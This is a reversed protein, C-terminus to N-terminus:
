PVGLSFHDMYFEFINPRAEGAGVNKPDTKKHLDRLCFDFEYVFRKAGLADM